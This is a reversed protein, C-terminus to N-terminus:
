IQFSTRHHVPLTKGGGISTVILAAAGILSIGYAVLLGKKVKRGREDKQREEPNYREIWEAKVSVGM